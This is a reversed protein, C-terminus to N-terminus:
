RNVVEDLQNFVQNHIRKIFREALSETQVRIRVLIKFKVVEVKVLSSQM